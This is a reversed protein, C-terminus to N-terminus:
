GLRYDVVMADTGGPITDVRDIRGQMNVQVGRPSTFPLAPLGTNSKGFSVGARTPRYRTRRMMCQQSAILDGLMREVRQLLYRNRATSLMLEGRLDKAVDEAAAHVARPSIALPEARHEVAAAIAAGVLRDLLRHYVQGLDAGSVDPEERQMLKLGHRAFHQFPCAAMTELQRATPSLPAPFLSPIVDPSLSATNSYSLAPWAHTRLHNVAAHEGGQTALWQYLARWGASQGAIDQETPSREAVCEAAAAEREAGTAQEDNAGPSVNKGAGDRIWRMLGTVLQRPTAICSIDSSGERGVQEVNSDPFIEGIRRWFASPEAARGSEGGLPRSLILQESPQTFTVYALLREDLLQREADPDLELRRRTMERRERDSLVTTHRPRAPFEGENLGLVFVASVPPCRTRDAAGVLVQDMTPPTIGLEFQDLGSEVIDIFDDPTVEEDGLLDVMQEFLECLSKWIQEHVERQEIQMGRDQVSQPRPSDASAIWRALSQRIAFRDFTAFIESAMARISLPKQPRLMRVLPGLGDAIRRRLGDIHMPSPEAPNEGDSQQRLLDRRWAWPRAAEWSSGGVRHLLIYNELEDAEDLTLGALGTKAMAIISDHNWDSRAASLASRLFCVLPHHAASRRHDVFFPIGHEAFSAAILSRYNELSRVLVAIDRLRKGDKLLALIRRAVADVEAARDPAEFRLVPYNWSPVAARLRHDNSTPENTVRGDRGHMTNGIEPVMRVPPVGTDRSASEPFIERELRGLDASEFRPQETLIVAQNVPVNEQAFTFFLRRYTSETRHFLSMEDPLLSADKLVPSQPDMVLTIEMAAGAKALAGLMKREHDTFDFFGDVYITAENLFPCTKVAELIQRLRRNPDIRDQGLFANYADYLLRVDQLKARLTEAEVDVQGHGSLDDLVASLDEASKGARELEDFTADLEAALGAQREISKFFVLQGAHRRLLHGLIMQRGIGSIDGLQTGGAEGLIEKGLQAFSLVRARCYGSLGAACTLRREAEFTAQRPLLWYIPPGLPANRLADAIRNFCRLTKGSGARAIVFTVSMRAGKAITTRM